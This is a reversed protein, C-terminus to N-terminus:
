YEPVSSDIEQSWALIGGRVNQATIGKELLMLCAKASRMGSKCHVFIPQDTPLEGVRDALEGLPILISGPVRAIDAEFPERVDLLFPPSAGGLSIQLEQVTVEGDSTAATPEETATGCFAEYDILDEVTPQDGCVPCQPDKRLRIERIRFSLTDFHVLRGLLSDGLGAMWKIAELAQLSGIIGPLVGLVGGEACSPVTGPPPPEPFLCRYCPSGEHPAFLSVQGEFRYISGYVNPKKTLVALDNTLYRTAFNDTGDLLLDFGSSLLRANASTFREPFLELRVHPNVERIRDAASDLKSRGVDSEGHLIQRQLNSREVTDPDVLGLTGVGAAALYLAAPSGLGGAGICLVSAAKLREQGERGFEPLTLHRQYRSLEDPGLDVENRM